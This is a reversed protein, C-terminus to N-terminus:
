HSHQQYIKEWRNVAAFLSYNNEVRRRAKKGLTQAEEKNMILAKNLADALANPNNTPVLLGCDGLVEKVGGCDTAVVVKETAMAEAVVLGFGEWASSLVYIDAANLLAPIDSRIGLFIVCDLIGLSAALSKLESLLDGAGAIWLVAKSQNKKIKSFAHLLNPYDKAEVLRGIAFIVQDADSLHQAIRLRSREDQNFRFRNTDIGNVVALMQGPLVAGKEEFAKVAKNTVNTSVDALSNTLRYAWMRLQGGENTSHATCILRPLRTTLRILRALLNAHVMHSHVVDPQFKKILGRLALYGRFFGGISKSIRFGVLSIQSHNPFIQAEGTLYAIAVTEGRQAFQDALDIVQREAGGVGLGTIVFLIKM